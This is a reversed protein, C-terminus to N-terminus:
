SVTIEVIAQNTIGLLVHPSQYFIINEFQHSKRKNDDLGHVDLRITHLYSNIEFSFMLKKMAFSNKFFSADQTIMTDNYVYHVWIYRNYLQVSIGFYESHKSYKKRTQLYIQFIAEEKSDNYKLGKAFECSVSFNYSKLYFRFPNISYIQGTAAIHKAHDTEGRDDAKSNRGCRKFGTHKKNSISHGENGM